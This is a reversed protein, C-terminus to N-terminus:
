ASFLFFHSLDHSSCDFLMLDVDKFNETDETEIRLTKETYSLFDYSFYGVFGGTFSPLYSFKPSRNKSLIQRIQVSPDDTTM